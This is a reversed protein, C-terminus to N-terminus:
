AGRDEGMYSIFMDARKDAEDAASPNYGMEGFNNVEVQILADIKDGTFYKFDCNKLILTPAHERISRMSDFAYLNFIVRHRM